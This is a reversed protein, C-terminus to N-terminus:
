ALCRLQPIAKQSSSTQRGPVDQHLISVTLPNVDVLVTARESISTDHPKLRIKTQAALLKKIAQHHETLIGLRLISGHHIALSCSSTPYRTKSSGAANLKRKYWGFQTYPIATMMKPIRAVPMDDTLDYAGTMTM